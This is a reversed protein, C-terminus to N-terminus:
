EQVCRVSLGAVHGFTNNPNTGAQSFSFVNSNIEQKCMFWCTGGNGVTNMTGTMGRYYGTAPYWAQQYYLRGNTANYIGVDVQSGLIYYPATSVAFDSWTGNAPVRWGKPCPDYMSKPSSWLTFDQKLESDTYWDYPTTSNYIFTLPHKVAYIIANDNYLMIDSSFLERKFGNM